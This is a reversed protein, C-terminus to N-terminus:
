LPYLYNNKIGEPTITTNIQASTPYLFYIRQNEASFSISVDEMREDELIKVVADQLDLNTVDIYPKFQVGLKKHVPIYFTIKLTNTLSDEDRRIPPITKLLLKGHNKAFVDSVQSIAINQGFKVLLYGFHIYPRISKPINIIHHIKVQRLQEVVSSDIEIDKSLAQSLFTEARIANILTQTDSIINYQRIFDPITNIFDPNNYKNIIFPIITKDMGELLGIEFFIWPSAMSDESIVVIGCTANSLGNYIEETPKGVLIDKKDLFYPIKNKDLSIEIVKKVFLEDKRSYSIFATGISEEKGFLPEVFVSM